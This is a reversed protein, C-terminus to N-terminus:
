ATAAQKSPLGSPPAVILGSGVPWYPPNTHPRTVADGETAIVVAIIHWLQAVIQLIQHRLLAFIAAIGCVHVQAHKVAADFQSRCGDCLAHKQWSLGHRRNTVNLM